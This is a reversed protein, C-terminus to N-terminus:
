LSKMASICGDVGQQQTYRGEVLGDFESKWRNEFFLRFRQGGWVRCCSVRLYAQIVNIYVGKDTNM